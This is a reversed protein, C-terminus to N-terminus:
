IFGAEKVANHGGGSYKLLYALSVSRVNGGQCVCVFKM